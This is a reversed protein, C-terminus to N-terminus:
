ESHILKSAEEYTISENAYEEGDLYVIFSASGGPAITLPIIFEKAETIEESAFKYGSTNKADTVVIEVLYKKDLIFVDKPPEVKQYFDYVIEKPEPGKSLILTIFEGKEVEEGPGPSHSIVVGEEYEDSFQYEAENLSLGSDLIYNEAEDKTLGALDKLEVPKPGRSYELYLVEESPNIKEGAKPEQSIIEGAPVDESYFSKDIVNKYKEKLNLREIIDINRGIYDEMEQLPPGTSVVLTVTSGEKVTTEPKPDQSIVNGEEIEESPQEEREVDLGEEHLKDYADEYDLNIVDPVDVDKVYFIDPLVTLALVGAIGIILITSISIWLWKKKKSNKKPLSNSPKNPDDVMQDKIPAIPSIIRTAEADIEEEIYIKPENLRSADLANHLDNAFEKANEYRKKPDKALARLIINEVSQPISGNILKPHPLKEQLHKLAVSVPSDGSFPLSGTVMEYLVIGMSYIDSKANVVSGRAQEPSFYHVSGLISNTHTITASTAAIAIGFDTVKANGMPDILINHPKIDRHVIHSEHAHAIASAIQEMIRIARPVPIVGLERIKDKLTKGEIYEMVIFYIGNDEGVDFISVINPHNLSTAAEAERHFRKIFEDNTSFESRLIKVAVIRDLILDEAKYVLAMGGEGILELLKYRDSIRRGLIM